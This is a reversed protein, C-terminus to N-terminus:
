FKWPLSLWMMGKQMGACPMHVPRLQARSRVEKEAVEELCYAKWMHAITCDNLKGHLYLYNRQLSHEHLCLHSWVFWHLWEFSSIGCQKRTAIKWTCASLYFHFDSPICIWTSQSKDIQYVKSDVSLNVWRNKDWCKTWVRKACEQQVYYRSVPFGM